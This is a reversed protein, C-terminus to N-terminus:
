RSHTVWLYRRLGFISGMLVAIDATLQIIPLIGIARIDNVYRYNKLISWLFYCLLLFGVAYLILYSQISIASLFLVLGLIYRVFLLVVKPRLIGSEIDGYAFRYFMWFAEQINKRPMWYVIADKVMKIKTSNKKIKQAFVYDENYSYKEPFGGLKKWVNKRIAMTRSAPLFTEPNLVDPMVLVYPVLCKQFLTKPLGEYYGAVVEINRDKFPETIRKLWNKDLICGADTIAIINSNAWKIGENRGVSRNGKKRLINVPIQFRTKIRTLSLLTSDTSGGDVIIVEGPSMSQARISDFLAQVSDVENFVTVILSSSNKVKKEM